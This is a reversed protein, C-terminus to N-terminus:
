DNYRNSRKATECVCPYFPKFDKVIREGKYDQEKVFAEAADLTEFYRNYVNGYVTFGAPRLYVCFGNVWFKGDKVGIPRGNFLVEGKKNYLYDEAGIKPLEDSLRMWKGSDVLPQTDVRPEMRKLEGHSTINGHNKNFEYDRVKLLLDCIVDQMDNAQALLEEHSLKEFGWSM